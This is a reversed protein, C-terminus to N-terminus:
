IFKCFYSVIDKKRNISKLFFFINLKIYDISKTKYPNTKKKRLILKELFLNLILIEKM